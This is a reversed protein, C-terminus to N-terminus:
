NIEERTPLPIGDKKCWNVKEYYNFLDKNKSRIWEKFEKDPNNLGCLVEDGCEHCWDGGYVQTIHSYGCLLCVGMSEQRKM